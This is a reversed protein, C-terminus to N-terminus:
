YTNWEDCEVPESVFVDFNSKIEDNSLNNFYRLVAEKMEEVTPLENNTEFSFNFSVAHDYVKDRKDLCSQCIDTCKYEHNVIYPVSM